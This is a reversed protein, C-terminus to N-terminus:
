QLAPEVDISGETIRLLCVRRSTFPAVSVRVAATTGEPVATVNEDLAVPLAVTPSDVPRTVAAPTPVAIMVADIVTLSTVYVSVQVTM